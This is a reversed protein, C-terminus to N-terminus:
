LWRTTSGNTGTTCSRCACRRIRWWCTRSCCPAATVFVCRRSAWTRLELPGAARHIAVPVDLREALAWYPEMRPDDPGIGSYQNAIEGLVAFEGSELLPEMAEPSLTGEVGLDMGLGGWFLDRAATKWKRVREAAGSLVGYVNHERMAAISENMLAEDSGPSWLPDSCPPEKAYRMFVDAWPEKPDWPPLHGLLPVCIGLPPPGNGDAANAHLHMDLIPLSEQAQLVTGLVLLAVFLVTVKRSM